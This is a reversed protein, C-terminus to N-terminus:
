SSTLRSPTGSPRTACRSPKMRLRVGLGVLGELQGADSTPERGSSTRPRRGRSRAATGPWRRSCPARRGPAATSAASTWSGCRRRALRDALRLGAPGAARHLDVQVEGPAVRGARRRRELLDRGGVLGGGHRRDLGREEASVSGLSQVWSPLGSPQFTISRAKVLASARWMGLPGPMSPRCPAGSAYRRGPRRRRGATGTRRPSAPCASRATASRRGARSRARVHLVQRRVDVHPRREEGTALADRM